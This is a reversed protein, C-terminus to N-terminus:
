VWRRDDHLGTVSNTQRSEVARLTARGGAASGASTCAPPLRHAFQDYSKLLAGSDGSAMLRPTPSRIRQHSFPDTAARVWDMGDPGNGARNLGVMHTGDQGTGLVLRRSEVRPRVPRHDKNRRVAADLPALDVCRVEKYTALDILSLRNGPARQTGHNSAVACKGDITSVLEQPGEGTPGKGLVKQSALDVVAVSGKRNLVILQAAAVSAGFAALLILRDMM